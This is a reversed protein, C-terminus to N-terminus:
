KSNVQYRLRNLTTKHITEEETSYYINKVIYGKKPAFKSINKICQNCPKSMCLKKNKTFRVVLMNINQRKKTYPLNNIADHEAHITYLDGINNAMYHNEGFSLINGNIKTDKTIKGKLVARLISFSAAIAIILIITLCLIM